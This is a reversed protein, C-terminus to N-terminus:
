RGITSLSGSLDMERGSWSSQPPGPSQSPSVVKQELMDALTQRAEDRLGVPLRNPAQRVPASNATNIRHQVQDTRGYDGPGAAFAHPHRKLVALLQEQQATDLSVGRNEQREVMEQLVDKSAGLSASPSDTSEGTAIVSAVGEEHLRARSQHWPLNAGNQPHPEYGAVLAQDCPHVITRAIVVPVKDQPLGEVIWSGEVGESIELQIDIESYAPVDTTSACSVHLVEGVTGKDHRRDTQLKLVTKRSPLELTKQGLDVICNEAKLFDIGLIIDATIDDVITVPVSFSQGGLVVEVSTSGRTSLPTRDVGVLRQDVPQLQQAAMVTHNWYDTCVLTLALGTDILVQAPHNGVWGEVYYSSSLSVVLVEQSHHVQNAM